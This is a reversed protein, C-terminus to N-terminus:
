NGNQSGCLSPYFTVKKILGSDIVTRTEFRLEWYSSSEKEGTPGWTEEEHGQDHSGVRCQGVCDTVEFSSGRQEVSRVM